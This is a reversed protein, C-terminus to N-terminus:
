LRKPKGAKSLLKQPLVMPVRGIVKTSDFNNDALAKWPVRKRHRNFSHLINDSERELM